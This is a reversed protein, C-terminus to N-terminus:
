QRHKAGADIWDKILDLKASTVVEVSHDYNWSASQDTSLIRYLVSSASNGAEVRMFDPEKVSEVGVLDAFANGDTLDLGAAAFNSRGHCQICTTNFIETQIATAPSVDVKYSVLLVTDSGTRCDVKAFSAMRRRLRDIACLEVTSVEPPIGALVMDCRGDARNEVNKSILAYENGDAFGALVLTYNDPWEDAGTMSTTIRATIGERNEIDYDDPIRGEDCSATAAALVVFPIFRPFKM